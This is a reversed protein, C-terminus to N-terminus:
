LSLLDRTSTLSPNDTLHTAEAEVRDFPSTSPFTGWM